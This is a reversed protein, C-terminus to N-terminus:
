ETLASPDTTEEDINIRTFTYIFLPSVNQPGNYNTEEMTDKHPRERKALTPIDNLMKAPLSVICM